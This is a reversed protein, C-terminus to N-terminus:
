GNTNKQSNGCRCCLLAPACHGSPVRGCDGPGRRAPRAPQRGRGCAGCPKCRRTRVPASPRRAAGLADRGAPAPRGGIKVRINDNTKRRSLVARKEPHHRGTGERVVMWPEKGEDLLTIVDPKSMSPGALSIFNSYNEWMVDRYLDRQASDLFEWEEQSFDIAVDRFTVSGHAM